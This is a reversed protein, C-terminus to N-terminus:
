ETVERFACTVLGCRRCRNRGRDQASGDFPVLFSISKVPDMVLSSGLRVPLDEQDLAGAVLAGFVLAQEEISWRGYGPSVRPGPAPLTGGTLAAECLDGNLRDAVAEVAASGIADLFLARTARGEDGHETVRRELAPGITCIGLASGHDPSVFASGPLGAPLHATVGVGEILGAAEQWAADFEAVAEMLNERESAQRAREAGLRRVEGVLEPRRAERDM